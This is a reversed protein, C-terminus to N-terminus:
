NFLSQVESTVIQAFVKHSHKRQRGATDANQKKPRRDGKRSEWETVRPFLFAGVRWIEFQGGFFFVEATGWVKDAPEGDAM